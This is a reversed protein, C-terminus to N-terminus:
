DDNCLLRAAKGVFLRPVCFCSCRKSVNTSNDKWYYTEESCSAGSNNCTRWVVKSHLPQSTMSCVFEYERGLTFFKKAGAATLRAKPRENVTLCFHIREDARVDARLARAREQAHAGAGDGDEAEPCFVSYVGTDYVDAETINLFAQHTTSNPPHFAYKKNDARGLIHDESLHVEGDPSLRIYRM